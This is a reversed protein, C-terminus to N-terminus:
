QMSNIGFDDEILKPYSPLKYHSWIMIECENLGVLQLTQDNYALDSVIPEDNGPNTNPFNDIPTVTKAYPAVSFVTSDNSAILLRDDIWTFADEDFYQWEFTEESGEVRHLMMKENDRMVRECNLVDWFFCNTDRYHCKRNRVYIYKGGPSWSVFCERPKIYDYNHYFEYCPKMQRFDYIRANYDTGVAFQNANTKNCSLSHFKGRTSGNNRHQDCNIVYNPTKSERRDIYFISSTGSLGLLVSDSLAELCHPTENM